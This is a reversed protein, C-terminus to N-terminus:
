ESMKSHNVLAKIAPDTTDTL